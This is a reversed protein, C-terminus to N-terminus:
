PQIIPAPHNSLIVDPEAPKAGLVTDFGLTSQPGLRMNPEVWNVIHEIPALAPLNFTLPRALTIVGPTSCRRLENAGAASVIEIIQGPPIIAAADHFISVDGTSADTTLTHDTATHLELVQAAAGAPYALAIPTALTVRFVDTAVRTVSTARVIERSGSGRMLDLAQTGVNITTLDVGPASAHLLV